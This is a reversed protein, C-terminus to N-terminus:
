SIRTSRLLETRECDGLFIHSRGFIHIIYLVRTEPERFVRMQLMKHEALYKERELASGHRFTQM